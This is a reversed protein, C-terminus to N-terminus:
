GFVVLVVLASLTGKAEAKRSYLDNGKLVDVSDDHVKSGPGQRAISLVIAPLRAHLPVVGLSASCCVLDASVEIAAARAASGRHEGTERPRAM